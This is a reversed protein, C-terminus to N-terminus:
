TKSVCYVRGLQDLIAWCQLFYKICSFNILLEHTITRNM